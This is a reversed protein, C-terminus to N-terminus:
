CSSKATYWWCWDFVVEVFIFFVYNQFPLLYGIFLISRVLKLRTIKDQKLVVNLTDFLKWDTLLIRFEERVGELEPDPLFTNDM